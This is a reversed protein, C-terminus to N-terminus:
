MLVTCITLNIFICNKKCKLQIITYSIFLNFNKLKLSVRFLELLSFNKKSGTDTYM